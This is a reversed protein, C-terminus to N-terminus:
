SNRNLKLSGISRSVSVNTVQVLGGLLAPDSIEFCSKCIPNSQLISSNLPNLTAMEVFACSGKRIPHYKSSFIETLTPKRSTWETAYALIGQLILESAGGPPQVKRVLPLVFGPPAQRSLSQSLAEAMRLCRLYKVLPCCKFASPQLPRIQDRIEIILVQWHILEAAHNTNM